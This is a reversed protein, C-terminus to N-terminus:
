PFSINLENSIKLSSAANNPLIVGAWDHIMISDVLYVNATMLSSICFRSLFISPFWRSRCWWWGWLIFAFTVRRLRTSLFLYRFEQLFLFSSFELFHITWIIISHNKLGIQVLNFGDRFYQFIQPWKFTPGDFSWASVFNDSNGFRNLINCLKWCIYTVSQFEM